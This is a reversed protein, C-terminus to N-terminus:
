NDKSTALELLLRIWQDFLRCEKQIASLGIDLAASTAYLPKSKKYPEFYKIIRKSPAKVPDDNIHEPSKFQDRIAQFPEALSPEELSEALQKPDSFLLGEYEHFQIYPIFRRACQYGLDDEVKQLFATHFADQMAELKTHEKSATQAKSEVKGPFKSDIGYNDFFTTCFCTSDNKLLWQLHELARSYSIGGGKKGPKGIRSPRLEIGNQRFEDRLLHNVFQEESPGECIVHLRIM